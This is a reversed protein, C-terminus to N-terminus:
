ETEDDDDANTADDAAAGASKYIQSFEIRNSERGQDFWIQGNSVALRPNAKALAELAKRDTIGLFVCRLSECEILPSFDLRRHKPAAIIFKELGKCNRIFDLSELQQMSRLALVRLGHVHSLTTLDLRKCSSIDLERVSLDGVSEVKACIQLMVSDLSSCDVGKFTRANGAVLRLSRLKLASLPTMDEHRWQRGMLGRLSHCQNIFVADDSRKLDVTLSSIHLKALPKLSAPSNSVSLMELYQLEALSTLDRVAKSWILVGRLNPFLLALSLSEMRSDPRISLRVVSEIMPKAALAHTLADFDPIRGRSSNVFVVVESGAPVCWTSPNAEDITV